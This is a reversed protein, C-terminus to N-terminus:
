NQSSHEVALVEATVRITRDSVQQSRVVVANGGVAAAKAILKARVDLVTPTRFGLQYHSVKVTGLSQYQLDQPYETLVRVGSEGQNSANPRYETTSCACLGLVLALLIPKFIHPPTM